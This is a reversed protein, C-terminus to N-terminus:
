AKRNMAVWRVINLTHVPLYCIAFVLVVAIMMKAVKRRTNLAAEHSGQHQMKTGTRQQAGRSNLSEGGSLKTITNFFHGLIM